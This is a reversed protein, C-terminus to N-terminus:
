KTFIEGLRERLNARARNIRSKITGIDCGLIEAAELYSAGVVVVLMLAERQHVPIQLLAEEFESRQINWIQSDPVAHPVASVCDKAGPAERRRKIAQSYFCNRLITFLWARLNTGRKFQHIHEIARVLAEQVLDDAEIANRTMSRAFGRMAPLHGVVEDALSEKDPNAKEPKAKASNTRRESQPPPDSLASNAAIEPPKRAQAPKPAARPALPTSLSGSRDEEACSSNEGEDWGFDSPEM